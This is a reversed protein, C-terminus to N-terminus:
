DFQFVAVKEDLNKALDRCTETRQHTVLTREEIASASDSIGTLDKNIEEVVASQQEAASAIGTNLDKLNGIIDCVANLTEATKTTSAIVAKGLDNSIGVESAANATETQLVMIKDRIQETSQQTKNALSRVEDAVVAFGRGHEGARAAEISANLSLLNIQEAITQIIDLVDGITESEKQLTVMHQHSSELKDCLEQMEGHLEKASNLTAQSKEEAVKAEDSAQCTNTAVEQITASMEHMATAVNDLRVKQDSSDTASKDMDASIDSSEKLMTVSTENINIMTTQIDALWENFVTELEAIEGKGKTDLRETLDKDKAIVRIGEILLNLPRTIERGLFIGAVLVILLLSVFLIAVTTYLEMELAVADELAESTDIESLIAWTIGQIVLPAYASLVEVGRYDTIYEFGSQGRLAKATAITDVPQQGITSDKQNITTIINANIKLSKLLELYARKDEIFFRSESLLRNDSGVIYTEGSSGMGREEWEGSFTMIESIREIPMQFILIGILEGNEHIPSSIFSAQSEYSPYYEDFDILYSNGEQPHNAAARFAAALGTNRYPGTMLSSGYDLEKFVSYVIHGTNPEVLFIDYYGFEELYANIPPHYLQHTKNYDSKDSASILKNKEGLPNPNNSIYQAQLVKSHEKLKNYKNLSNAQLSKNQREYERGFSNTYYQKLRLEDQKTIAGMQEPASHFDTDFSKMANIIMRDQALTTIQGEIMDFYFTIQQKKVERMSILHKKAKEQLATKSLITAQWVTIGGALLIGISCLIVCQLIIKTTIKM